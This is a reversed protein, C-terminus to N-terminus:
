FYIYRLNRTYHLYMTSTCYIAGTNSYYYHYRRQTYYNGDNIMLQRFTEQATEMGSQIQYDHKSAQGKQSRKISDQNGVQTTAM